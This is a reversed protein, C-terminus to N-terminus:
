PQMVVTVPATLRVEILAEAPIVAPEGRTALAVGVGTAAGAGAGKAAGSGGGAIGGIIAGVGTAVGTRVTDKKKSSAADATFSETRLAIVNGKVGVVSQLGVVLTATGKVRGGPDSTLVVGTARSKAKAITTDGSVLDHELIAEFTSGNALKATSLENTPRVAIPTGAPLVFERPKLDDVQQQLRVNSETQRANIGRQEDTLRQAQARDGATAAPRQSTQRDAPKRAPAAATRSPEPAPSSPPPTVPAAAAPAAAEKDALQKQTEALQQELQAVKADRAADQRSGCGVAVAAVALCALSHSRLIM